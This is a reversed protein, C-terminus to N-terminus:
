PPEQGALEGAAETLADRDRLHQQSSRLHQHQVLWGAPEIRVLNDAKALENPRERFAVGHQDGGVDEGLDFLDGDRIM